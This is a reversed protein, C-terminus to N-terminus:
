HSTTEGCRAKEKFLFVTLGCRRAVSVAPDPLPDESRMKVLTLPGLVVSLNSELLNPADAPGVPTRRAALVSLSACERPIIKKIGLIKKNM